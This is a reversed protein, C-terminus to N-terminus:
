EGIEISVDDVHYCGMSNSGQVPELSLNSMRIEVPEQLMGGKQALVSITVEGATAWYSNIDDPVLYMCIGNTNCAPEFTGTQGRWGAGYVTYLEVNFHFGEINDHFQYFPDSGTVYATYFPGWSETDLTVM